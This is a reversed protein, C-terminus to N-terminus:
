PCRRPTPRRRAPPLGALRRALYLRAKATGAARLTAVAEPGVLAAAAMRCRRKSCCGTYGGHEDNLSAGCRFCRARERLERDLWEKRAADEVALRDAIQGLVRGRHGDTSAADGSMQFAEM